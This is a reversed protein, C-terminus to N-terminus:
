RLIKVDELPLAFHDHGADLFAVDDEIREIEVTEGTKKIIAKM